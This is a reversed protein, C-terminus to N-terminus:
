FGDGLLQSLTVMSYGKEKLGSLILPLADVVNSRTDHLLIIAGNYVSGLVRQAVVRPKVGPLDQRGINTWMVLYLGKREVMEMVSSTYAGLPPRFFAPTNGTASAIAASAKDIDDEVERRSLTTLDRHAYGHSAVTHGGEVMMKLIEPHRAAAEGTVFFTAKAGSRGLIELIKPTLEPDPGDNFTLAVRKIGSKTTVPSASWGDGSGSQGSVVVPSYVQVPINTRPTRAKKTNVQGNNPNAKGGSKQAEGPPSAQGPVPIFLTQGIVVLNPDKIKNAVLLEKTSLGFRAAIASLTDGRKVRYEKPDRPKTADKLATVTTPGAIGNVTLGRAKQFAKLAKGTSPGFSGDVPGPAFGASKLLSQLEAVDAGTMGEKLVRAGLKNNSGPSAAAGVSSLLFVLCMGLTLYATLKRM